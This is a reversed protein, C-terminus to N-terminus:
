REGGRECRWNVGGGGGEVVGGGAGGGEFGEGGFWGMSVDKERWRAFGVVLGGDAVVGQHYDVAEGDPAAGAFDDRGFDDLQGLFVGGGAEVLEVDVVDGVHSVLEAHTGHRRKQQELVALLDALDHASILFRQLRRDHLMRLPNRRSTIHHPPTPNSESSNSRYSSLLHPLTLSTTISKKESFNDHLM